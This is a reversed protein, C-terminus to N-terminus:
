QGAGTIRVKVDYIPADLTVVIYDRAMEEIEGPYRAQTLGGLAPIHVM